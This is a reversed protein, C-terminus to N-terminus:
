KHKRRRRLREQQSLWRRQQQKKEWKRRAREIMLHCFLIVAGGIVGAVFSVLVVEHM